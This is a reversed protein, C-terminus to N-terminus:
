PTVSEWEDPRVEFEFDAQAMADEISDHYTDTMEDGNADFYLCISGPIMQLVASHAARVAAASARTWSLPPNRGTVCHQPQLIVRRLIIYDAM